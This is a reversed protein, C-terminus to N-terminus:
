LYGFSKCLHKMDNPIEDARPLEKSAQIKGSRINDSWDGLFKKFPGHSFSGYDLMQREWPINLYDCMFQTTSEPESVLDEYRVNISPVNRQAEQMALCFTTLVEISRSRRSRTSSTDEEGYKERSANLSSEVISVPHRLLFIYRAEPWCEAIRKWHIVNGPTKDVIVKKKSKLLQDHLVRDWLMYELEKKTLGLSDMALKTVESELTARIGYLHM